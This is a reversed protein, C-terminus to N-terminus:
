RYFLCDFYTSILKAHYAHQLLPLLKKKDPANMQNLFATDDEPHTFFTIAIQRVGPDEDALALAVAPWAPRADKGMRWLLDLVNARTARMRDMEPAPLLRVLFGELPVSLRIEPLLHPFPM